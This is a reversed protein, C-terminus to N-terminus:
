PKGLNNVWITYVPLAYFLFSFQSNLRLEEWHVSYSLLGQLLHSYVWYEYFTPGWNVMPLRDWCIFKKEPNVDFSDEWPRCSQDYWLLICLLIMDSLPGSDLIYLYGECHLLLSLGIKFHAFYKFLCKELFFLYALQWDACSFISM